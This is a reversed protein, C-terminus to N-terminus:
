NWPLDTTVPVSWGVVGGLPNLPNMTGVTAAVCVTGTPVLTRSAQMYTLKRHIAEGRAYIYQAAAAQESPQPLIISDDEVRATPWGSERLIVQFTARYLGFGGARTNPSAAVTTFQVTLADKVGDDGNGLTVYAALEDCGETCCAKLADYVAALLHAAISYLDTCCPDPLVCPENPIV